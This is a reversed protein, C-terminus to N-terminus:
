IKNVYCYEEQDQPSLQGGSVAATTMSISFYSCMGMAKAIEMNRMIRSIPMDPLAVLWPAVNEV